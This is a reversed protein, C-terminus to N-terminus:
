GTCFNCIKNKHLIIRMIQYTGNHCINFLIKERLKDFFANYILYVQKDISDASESNANESSPETSMTTTTNTLTKDHKKIETISTSQPLNSTATPDFQDEEDFFIITSGTVVNKVPDSHHATTLLANMYGADLLSPAISETVVNEVIHSRSTVTTSTEGDPGAQPLSTKFTHLAYICQILLVTLVTLVQLTLYTKTAFIQIPEPTPNVPATKMTTKRVPVKELVVDTSTAINTRVVTSGKELFTNFYTYTIYYTKTMDTVNNDTNDLATLTTTVSTPRPPPASETV